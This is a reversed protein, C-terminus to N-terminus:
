NSAVTTPLPAHALWLGCVVCTSCNVTGDLRMVMGVKVCETRIGVVKCWYLLGPPQVAYMDPVKTTGGIHVM